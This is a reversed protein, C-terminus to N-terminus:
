EGYIVDPGGISSFGITFGFVTEGDDGVRAIEIPTVNGANVDDIMSAAIGRIEPAHASVFRKGPDTAQTRAM